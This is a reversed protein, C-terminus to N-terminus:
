LRVGCKHTPFTVEACRTENQLLKQYDRYEVPARTWKIQNAATIYMTGGEICLM